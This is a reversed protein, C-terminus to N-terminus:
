HKKQYVTNVIVWKDNMKVLHLYEYYHPSIVKVNAMKQYYDLIVVTIDCEGGCLRKGYGGATYSIMESASIHRLREKGDHTNRLHKKCLTEHISSKMKEADGDYWAHMYNLATERIASMEDPSGANAASVLISIMISIIILKRM